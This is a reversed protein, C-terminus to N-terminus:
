FYKLIFFHYGFLRIVTQKHFSVTRTIKKHNQQLFYFKKTDKLFQCGERKTKKGQFHRLHWNVRLDKWFNNEPSNGLKELDHKLKVYRKHMLKQYQFFADTFKKEIPFYKSSIPSRIKMNVFWNWHTNSLFLIARLYIM